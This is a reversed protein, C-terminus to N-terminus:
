RSPRETRSSARLTNGQFDYAFDYSFVRDIYVKMIAAM